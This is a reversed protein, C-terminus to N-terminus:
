FKGKKVQGDNLKVSIDESGFTSSWIGTYETSDPLYLTGQGKVGNEFWNGVYRYGDATTM